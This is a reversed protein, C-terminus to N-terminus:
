DAGRAVRRSTLEGHDAQGLSACNHERAVHHIQLFAELLVEDWRDRAGPAGHAHILAILLDAQDPIRLSRADEVGMVRFHKLRGFLRWLEVFLRLSRWTIVIVM